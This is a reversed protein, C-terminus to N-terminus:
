AEEPNARDQVREDQKEIVKEMDIFTFPQERKEPMGNVMIEQLVETLFDRPLDDKFKELSENDWRLLYLYVLFRRAPNAASATGEYILNILYVGPYWFSDDDQFCIVRKLERLAVNRTTPGMMEEAIVYIECVLELATPLCTLREPLIENTYVAQLYGAFFEPELHTLEIKKSEANRWRGSFASKFFGSKKAITDRHINFEERDDDEGVIVKILPSRIFSYM